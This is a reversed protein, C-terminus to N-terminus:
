RLRSGAMLSAAEAGDPDESDQDEEAKGSALLEIQERRKRGHRQEGASPESFVLSLGVVLAADGRPDQEEEADAAAASM